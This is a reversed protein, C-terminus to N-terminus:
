EGITSVKRGELSMDPVEEDLGILKPVFEETVFLCLLALRVKLSLASDGPQDPWCIISLINKSCTFTM